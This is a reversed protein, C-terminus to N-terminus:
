DLLARYADAGAEGELEDAAMAAVRAGGRLVVATTCAQM